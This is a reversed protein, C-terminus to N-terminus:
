KRRCCFDDVSFEDFDIATVRKSSRDCGVGYWDCVHSENLWSAREDPTWEAGGTSFYFTGLVFRDLLQHPTEGDQEGGDNELLWELALRQTDSVSSSLGPLFASLTSISHDMITPSLSPSSSVTTSEQTPSDIPQVTAKLFSPAPPSSLNTETGGFPLAKIIVAAM